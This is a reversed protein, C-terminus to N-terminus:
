RQKELVALYEHAEQLLGHHGAYDKSLELIERAVRLEKVKLGTSELLLELDAPSYCRINQTIKLSGAYSQELFKNAFDARDSIEVGIVDYGAEATAAATNGYGSGLELITKREIGCINKITEVRARDTDTITAEASGWWAGTKSYFDKTWDM